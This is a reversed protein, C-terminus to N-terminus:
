PPPLDPMTFGARRIWVALGGRIAATPLIHIQWTVAVGRITCACMRCRPRPHGRSWVTSPSTGAEGVDPSSLMIWAQSRGGAKKLELGAGTPVLLLLGTSKTTPRVPGAQALHLV